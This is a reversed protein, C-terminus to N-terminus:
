LAHHRKQQALLRWGFGKDTFIKVFGPPMDTTCPSTNGSYPNKSHNIDLALGFAHASPTSSNMAHRPNYSGLQSIVYAKVKPDTSSKLAADVAQIDAAIAKNVRVTRGMLTASVIQDEACSTATQGNVSVQKGCIAKAAEGSLEIEQGEIFLTETRFATSSEPDAKLLDPNIQNLITWAGLALVLGFIAQTIKSKGSEKSSVLESTMYELGGIVIMIVALVACIGIFIQLATNIYTTLQKDAGVEYTEILGEPGPLPALLKYSTNKTPAPGGPGDGGPRDISLVTWNEDCAGDCDYELNGAGGKDETTFNDANTLDVKIFYECDNGGWQECDAEGAKMDLTFTNTTPFIVELDDIGAVDDDVGVTDDEVISVEATKGTCDASGKVTLKVGPRADDKFWNAGKNGSPSFTASQITCEASAAQPGSFFFIVPAITCAVSIFIKHKLIKM